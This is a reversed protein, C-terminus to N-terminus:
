YTDIILNPLTDGDGSCLSYVREVGGGPHSKLIRDRISRQFSGWGVTLLYDSTSILEKEVTSALGSHNPIQLVAPNYDALRVGLATLRADIQLHTALKYCQRQRCTQSGLAGYDRVALVQGAKLNYKLKLAKVASM